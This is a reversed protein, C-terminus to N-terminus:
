SNVPVAMVVPPGVPQGMQPPGGAAQFQFSQGGYVGQPVQVQMPAGGPGAITITQGPMAGPPAQVTMVQMGGPPAGMMQPPAGMVTPPAGSMMMPAAGAMAMPAPGGMMPPPAGMPNAMGPVGQQTPAGMAVKQTMGPHHPPLAYIYVAQGTWTDGDDYVIKADGNTYVAEITGCYWKNDGEDYQTQVRTGNRLPGNAGVIQNTVERSTSGSCGM